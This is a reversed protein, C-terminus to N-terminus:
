GGVSRLRAHGPDTYRPQIENLKISRAGPITEPQHTIVIVMKGADAEARLLAQLRRVSARDLENFPEDLLYLRADRYLARALAIRQQQGGSLNRGNELVLKNLTEGSEELMQGLGTAAVLAQLREPNLTKEELTINRAISDHILFSQQRVYAMHPWYAAANATNLRSGNIRVCGTAPGLFGLLLQMLTTKGCGSPGELLLLEGPLVSFSLGTFLTKNGYRFSLDEVELLSIAPAPAPLPIQPPVEDLTFAWAKIQGSAGIVKVLGPIMKYAAAMFAGARLLFYSAADPSQLSFVLLLLLGLVAVTELARAPLQQLGIMGFYADTFQRRAALFRDLFFGRRGYVKAEPQGSLAELLYQLSRENGGKVEGKKEDVAHRITRFLYAAPPLLVLLLLLFLRPDYILVATVSIGILLLQTAIQQCGLLLYHAFELPHFNVKRIWLSTETQVFDSQLEGQCAELQRGALRLAVRGALMHLARTIRLGCVNKALFGGFFLFLLGYPSLSLGPNQAPHLLGQVLWLLAALFAIDLLHVVADGASLLLYARREAPELLLWTQRLQKMRSATKSKSFLGVVHGM